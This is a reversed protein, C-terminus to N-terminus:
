IAKKCLNIDRENKIKKKCLENYKKLVEEKKNGDLLESLQYYFEPYKKNKAIATEITKIAQETKEKKTTAVVKFYHMLSGPASFDKNQQEITLIVEAWKEEAFEVAAKNKYIEVDLPNISLAKQITKYAEDYKKLWLYSLTLYYLVDTNSKELMEADSLNEVAEQYKDKEFQEKGSLYIQFGKETYFNKSFYFLQEKLLKKEKEDAKKYAKYLTNCALYRDQILTLNEAEKIARLKNDATAQTIFLFLFTGLIQAEKNAPM